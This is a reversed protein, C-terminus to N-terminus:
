SEATPSLVIEVPEVSEGPVLPGAEGLWSSNAAGPQGSPSVQVIVVVAPTESLKQGAMSQSDDLRLTVPLDAGRLRQVAIPMRSGSDANRALVFVTDGPAVTGGEPLSVSVTVGAGTAAPEAAPASVASATAAGEGLKERATAIIGSIMQRTESGPPEMAVLRQWYEIAARYQGQEYSAMGLLGLATRQHPDIALAQEARMRASDDLQRGAALYRAQAAYALAAADEPAVSTLEDYADAARSYDQLGMYYRGLMAVYHLNDPRQRAREEIALMLAQMEDPTSDDNLSQLQRAIMVDPAAGLRYYLVVAFLAIVPLLIWAPFGSRSVTTPADTAAPSGQEDELLRLRADEALAEDGERDLELQRQRYWALNAEALDQESVGDHRSLPKLYFLASFLLLAICAIILLTM